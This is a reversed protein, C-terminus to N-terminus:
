FHLVPPCIHYCRTYNCSDFFHNGIYSLSTRAYTRSCHILPWLLIISWLWSLLALLPGFLTSHRFSNCCCYRSRSGPGKADSISMHQLSRMFVISLYPISAYPSLLSGIWYIPFHTFLIVRYLTYACRQLSIFILSKGHRPFDIYHPSCAHM